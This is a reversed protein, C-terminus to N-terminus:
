CVEIDDALTRPYHKFDDDRDFQPPNVFISTVVIGCEQKAQEILRVHGAHLSGMTPVLGITIGTRRHETLRARLQEISESLATTM